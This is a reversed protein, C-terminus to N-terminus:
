LFKKGCQLLLKACLLYERNIGISMSNAFINGFYRCGNENQQPRVNGRTKLAWNLARNRGAQGQPPPSRSRTAYAKKEAKALTAHRSPKSENKNSQRLKSQELVGQRYCRITFYRKWINTCAGGFVFALFTQREHAFGVIASGDHLQRQYTWTSFRSWIRLSARGKRQSYLSCSPYSNFSNKRSKDYSRTYLPCCRSFLAM